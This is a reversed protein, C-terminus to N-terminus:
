NREVLAPLSNQRAPLGRRFRKDEMPRLLGAVSYDVGDAVLFAGTQVHNYASGSFSMQVPDGSSMSLSFSDVMCGYLTESFVGPVTRVLNFSPLCGTAAPQYKLNRAPTEGDTTLSDGIAAELLNHVDPGREAGASDDSSVELYTEVTFGASSKGEILRDKVRARTGAATEAFNREQEFTMSMSLPAIADSPLYVTGSPTVQEGFNEEPEPLVYNVSDRGLPYVGCNTAM